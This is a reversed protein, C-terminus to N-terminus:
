GLFNSIIVSKLETFISIVGFTMTLYKETSMMFSFSEQEDYTVIFILM